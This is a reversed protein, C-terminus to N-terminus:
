AGAPDGMVEALEARGAVGLKVYVRGLLNDVTRASIGLDEAIQRSTAGTAALSAIEAERATLEGAPGPAALVPSWPRGCAEWRGDAVADARAAASRRGEARHAAAARQGLEAAWQTFGADAFADAAAELEAGTGAKAALAILAALPSAVTPALAQIRRRATKSSTLRFAEWLALLEHPRAGADRAADAVALLGDASRTGGSAAAVVWAIARDADHDVLNGARDAASADAALRRATDADGALLHAEALLALLWRVRMAQGRQEYWVVADGLCSLADGARGAFLAARGEVLGRYAAAETDATEIARAAGVLADLRALDGATLLATALASVTWRLGEPVEAACAMAEGLAAEAVTVAEDVRGAAVLVAVRGPLARLRVVPEVDDLSEILQGAEDLAGAMALFTAHAARLFAVDDPADVRALAADVAAAAADLDHRALLHVTLETQLGRRVVGPSPQPVEAWLRALAEAADDTRGLRVLAEALAALAGSSGAAVAADALAWAVDVDGLRMAEDAAATLVWRREDVDLVADGAVQEDIVWGAVRVLETVGEAELGDSPVDGGEGGLVGRDRLRSRFGQVLARRAAGVQVSTARAKAVEGYLPHGLRVVGDADVTLAGRAELADQARRRDAVAAAGEDPGALVSAPVDGALAVALLLDAETSSLTGLWSDVLDTLRQGVVGAPEWRTVGHAVTFRGSALGDLVLERLALCNGGSAEALLRASETVLSSGLVSEVLARVEVASLAMLELRDGDDGRWLAAVEDPVPEGTRVTAVLRVAGAVVLQRLAAASLDDLLHADDAVVVAGHGGGVAAVADHLRTLVGVLEDAGALVPAATAVPPAHRLVSALAGTPVPQLAASAVVRVVGVGHVAALQEALEVALRSKGVGAAGSVVLSRGPRELLQAGLGLEVSRGILPWDRTHDVPGLVRDPRREGDDRGGDGM